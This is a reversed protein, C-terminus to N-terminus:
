LNMNAQIQEVSLNTTYIRIDDLVGTLAGDAVRGVTWTSSEYLLRRTDNYIKEHSYTGDIYFTMKGSSSNIPTLVWALHHWEDSPLPDPGYDGLYGWHGGQDTEMWFEVGDHLFQAYSTPLNVGRKYWLTVTWADLTSSGLGATRRFYNAFSPALGAGTKGGSTWPNGVQTLGNGHGSSDATTAGSGENFKWEALPTPLTVPPTEEDGGSGVGCDTKTPESVNSIFYTASGVSVRACYTTSTSIYGYNTEQSDSFGLSSIDSPYSDEDTYYFLIKEQLQKATSKAAADRSSNIIGNYSVITISALIAIVVIVVLLEVITFGSQKSLLKMSKGVNLKNM